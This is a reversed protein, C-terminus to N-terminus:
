LVVNKLSFVKYVCQIIGFVRLLIQKLWESISHNPSTLREKITKKINEYGNGCCNMIKTSIKWHGTILALQKLNLIAETM